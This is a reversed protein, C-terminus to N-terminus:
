PCYLFNKEDKCYIGNQKENLNHLFFIKFIMFFYQCFVSFTKNQYM